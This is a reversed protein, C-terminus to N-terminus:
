GAGAERFYGEALALGCLAANKFCAQPIRTEAVEKWRHSFGSRKRGAIDAGAIGAHQRDGEIQDRIVHLFFRRRM